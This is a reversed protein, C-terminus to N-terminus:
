RWRKGLGKEHMLDARAQALMKDVDDPSWGAEEFQRRVADATARITALTKRKSAPKEGPMGPRHDSPEM